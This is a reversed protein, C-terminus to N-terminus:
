RSATAAEATAAKTTGTRGSLALAGLTLLLALGFVAAFTGATPAADPATLTQFLIGAISLSMAPGAADAINLASSNFGQNGPASYELVLVSLRPYCLGMGAGSVAWGAIAVWAPLGLLATALVIAIAVCVAAGGIRLSTRTTLRDSFQGQLVSSAGWAVGAVTLALGALAPSLGFEGTFFYPLYVEAAFYGGALLMRLLVVSPLGRGGLLTRRPVLPRLAVLAVVLAAGGLAFVAAGDLETSLSLALIAAALLLSWLIRPASWPPKPAADPKQMSRMAPVVMGAAFVTLVAVGLFVWRWGVTQGLVGAIFPGVLAPIVWAAAFMGFIRPQLAPPYVRAVVVYLAVTMAGGGLGHVLRGAVVTGMATATGALLLGVVFLAVSAYLPATPGERDAWTGAVVMGLVSIALPAAFAVAYLAAGDLEASIVPMVTTVALNEFAAVFVLSIAGITVLRYHRSFLGPARTTSSM